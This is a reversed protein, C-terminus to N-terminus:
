LVRLRIKSPRGISMELTCQLAVPKNGSNVYVVIRADILERHRRGM